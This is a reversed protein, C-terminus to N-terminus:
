TAEAHLSAQRGSLSCSLAQRCSAPCSALAGRLLRGDRHPACFPLGASVAPPALATPLWRDAPVPDGQPTLSVDQLQRHHHTVATFGQLFGRARTSDSHFTLLAM